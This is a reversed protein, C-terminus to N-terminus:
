QPKRSIPEGTYGELRDVRDSLDDIRRDVHRKVNEAGGLVAATIVDNLDATQASLRRELRADQEAFRRDIRADVDRTFDERFERLLSVMQRGTVPGDLPDSM